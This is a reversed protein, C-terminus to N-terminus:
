SAAGPQSLSAKETRAGLPERRGVLAASGRMAGYIVASVFSVFFGVPWNTDYALILAAMVTVLGIVASLALATGPSKAWYRASAAPGIMLSFSLLVGVVPVTIACVIGVAILFGMELRQRSLGQAEAHSPLVSAYLLPRYLFALWVVAVIALLVTATDATSSVGVLQGFLLAYAGQAYDNALSLFLAGTGLGVVLILATGTDHRGRRGLASIGMAGSLSFIVLGVLPNVGVLVAGAAGAFGVQPLAHAVFSSSRMVVFFGILSAALAVAIGSIYAHVMFSESFIGPPFITSWLGSM